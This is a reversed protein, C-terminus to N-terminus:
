PIDTKLDWYMNGINDGSVYPNRSWLRTFTFYQKGM